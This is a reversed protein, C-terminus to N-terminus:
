KAKKSSMTGKDDPAKRKIGFGFTIKERKEELNIMAETNVSEHIPAAVQVVKPAPTPEPVTTPVPAVPRTITPLQASTSSISLFVYARNGISLQIHASGTQKAAESFLESAATSTGSSSQKRLQM